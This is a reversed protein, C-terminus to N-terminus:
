IKVDGIDLILENRGVEFIIMMEGGDVVIFFSFIYKGELNVFEIIGILGFYLYCNKVVIM